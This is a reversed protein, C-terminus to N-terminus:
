RFLGFWTGIGTAPAFYPLTLRTAHPTIRSAHFTFLYSIWPGFDLTWLGFDPTNVNRQTAAYPRLGILGSRTVRIPNIPQEAGGAKDAANVESRPAKPVPAIMQESAVTELSGALGGPTTTTQPAFLLTWVFRGTPTVLATAMAAPPEWM